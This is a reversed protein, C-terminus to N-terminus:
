LRVTKRLASANSGGASAPPEWWIRTSSIPQEKARSRNPGTKRCSQLRAWICLLFCLSNGGLKRSFRVDSNCGVRPPLVIAGTLEKPVSM